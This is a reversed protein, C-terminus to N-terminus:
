GRDDGLRYALARYRTAMDAGAGLEASSLAGLVTGLDAPSLEASGDNRVHSAAQSGDIRPVPQEPTEADLRDLVLRLETHLRWAWSDFDPRRGDDDLYADAERTFDAAVAAAATRRAALEASV